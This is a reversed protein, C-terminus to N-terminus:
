HTVSVPRCASSTRLAYQGSALASHGRGLCSQGSASASHSDDLLPPTPSEWPLPSYSLSSIHRASLALCGLLSDIYRLAGFPLLLKSDKCGQSKIKDIGLLHQTCFLKTPVAFYNQPFQLTPLSETALFRSILIINLVILHIFFKTQQLCVKLGIPRLRKYHFFCGLPWYVSPPKKKKQSM